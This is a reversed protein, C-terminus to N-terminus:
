DPNASSAEVVEGVGLAAVLRRGSATAQLTPM